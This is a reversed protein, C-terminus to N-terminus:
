QFPACGTSSNPSLKDCFILSIESVFLNPWATASLFKTGIFIPGESIVAELCNLLVTDCVEFPEM